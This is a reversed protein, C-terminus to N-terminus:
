KITASGVNVRDNFTAEIKDITTSVDSSGNQPASEILKPPPQTLPVPPTVTISVTGVNSEAQHSDIVKFTFSDNGSFGTAPIFTVNGTNQDIKGLSGHNPQPPTVIAASLTDGTDNDIAGPAIDVPKGAETTVQQNQAEPPHNESTPTPTPTPPQTLPVPPTVTISVTGVNSEAQHSDIVKFTFSDNGSFGTAPIFTVNGTNQDIKGLSGHNPQPPTVIAASLTDGTDNDIAGLAIDM